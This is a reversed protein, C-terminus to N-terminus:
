HSPQFCQLFPMLAKKGKRKHKRNAHHSPSGHKSPLFSPSHRLLPHLAPLLIPTTPIMPCLLLALLYSHYPLQMQLSESKIPEQLSPALIINRHSTSHHAERDHAQTSSTAGLSSRMRECWYTTLPAAAPALSRITDSSELPQLLRLRMCIAHMGGRRSGDVLSASVAGRVACEEAICGEAITGLGQARQVIRETVSALVQPHRVSAQAIFADRHLAVATTM